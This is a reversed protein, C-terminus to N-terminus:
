AKAENRLHDFEGADIMGTIREMDELTMTNLSAETGIIDHHNKIKGLKENVVAFFKNRAMKRELANGEEAQRQQEEPSFFDPEPAPKPPTETQTVLEALVEALEGANLDSLKKAKRQALLTKLGDTSGTAKCVAKIQERLEIAKDPTPLDTFDADEVPDAPKPQEVTPTEGIADALRDAQPRTDKAQEIGDGTVTVQPAPKDPTEDSIEEPTYLGQTAQPFCWRVGRSVARAHLMAAPTNKWNDKGLLGALKADDLSFEAAVTSGKPHSFVGACRKSDHQEWEVKGGTDQFVALMAEASMSIKDKIVHYRTPAYIPNVGDAHARLMLITTKNVDDTGFLRSQAAIKAVAQIDSLSKYIAMATGPEVKELAQSENESM